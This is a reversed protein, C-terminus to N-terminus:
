PKKTDNNEPLMQTWLPNLEREVQGIPKEMTTKLLQQRAKDSHSEHRFYLLAAVVLVIMLLMKSSITM